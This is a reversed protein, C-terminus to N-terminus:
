LRLPESILILSKKPKRMKAKTDESHRFGLAWKNGLHAKSIKRKTEESHKKGKNGYSIKNRHELSLSKGLKLNRQLQKTKISRKIGLSSGAILAINYEPKLTDIWYQEREILKEKECYELVHFTFTNEGYKNWARQLKSNRHANRKLDKIHWSWRNKFNVASGVYIKNTICNVIKYIGSKVM